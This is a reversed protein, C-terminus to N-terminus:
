GTPTPAPPVTVTIEKTVAGVPDCATVTVVVRATAPSDASYELTEVEDLNLPLLSAGGTCDPDSSAASGLGPQELRVGVAGGPVLGTARLRLM